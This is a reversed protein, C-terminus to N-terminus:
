LWLIYHRLTIRKSRRVAILHSTIYEGILRLSTSILLCTKRVLYAAGGGRVSGLRVQILYILRKATEVGHKSGIGNGIDGAWNSACGTNRVPMKRKALITPLSKKPPVGTMLIRKASELGGRGEPFKLEKDKRMMLNRSAFSNYNGPNGTSLALKALFLFQNEHTGHICSFLIIESSHTFCNLFSISFLANTYSYVYVQIM